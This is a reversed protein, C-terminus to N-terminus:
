AGRSRRLEVGRGGTILRIGWQYTVYAWTWQLMVILRSRFSILYFIHVSVWILWAIPGSLHVRGLRAVAAARGITALDGKDM